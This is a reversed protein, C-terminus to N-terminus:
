NVSRRNRQGGAVFRSIPVWVGEATERVLRLCRGKAYAELAPDAAGGGGRVDVADEEMDFACDDDYAPSPATSECRLACLRM